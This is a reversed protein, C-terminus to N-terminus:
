EPEDNDLMGLPQDEFIYGTPEKCNVELHASETNSWRRLYIRVPSSIAINCTTNRDRMVEVDIIVKQVRWRTYQCEHYGDTISMEIYDGERPVLPIWGKALEKEEDMQSAYIFTVHTGVYTDNM